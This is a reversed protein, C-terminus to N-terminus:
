ITCAVILCLECQKSFVCNRPKKGKETGAVYTANKRAETLDAQLLVNRATTRSDDLSICAVM